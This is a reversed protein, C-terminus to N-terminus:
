LLADKKDLKIIWLKKDYKNYFLLSSFRIGARVYKGVITQFRIQNARLIEM